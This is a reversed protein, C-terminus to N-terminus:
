RVNYLSDHTTKRMVDQQSLTRVADEITAAARRYAEDPACGETQRCLATHAIVPGIRASLTRQQPILLRGKPIASFTGELYIPLIDVGATLALYGVGRKFRGMAGTLTRTGEPFMLVLEGQQLATLAPKLSEQLDASRDIPLLNTFNGFYIRRIGDRFFYDKAALARLNKGYAGLAYKVLGMDLHSAHNAVILVNRNKPIHRAGVITTDFLQEYLRGQLKGLGWKVFAKAPPPIHLNRVTLAEPLPMPVLFSLHPLLPRGDKGQLRATMHPFVHRALGAIHVDIWYHRWDIAEPEWAWLAREAPSLRARLTRMRAAHFRVAHDHIFPLYQAFIKESRAALTRLAKGAEHLPRAIARLPLPGHRSARALWPQWADITARIQPASYKRFHAASVPVGEWQAMLYRLWNPMGLGKALEKSQSTSLYRRKFLGTLEITEAMTLPNTDSSGLQYLPEATGHLLAAGITGIANATQDVPIVDLVVGDGCPFRAQGLLGLFVIPASTNMGENWGPEPFSMASEIIAPRVISFQLKPTAAIVQEGLAKTYTYINPWGLIKARSQAITTATAADHRDLLAHLTAIEQRHDLRGSVRSEPGPVKKRKQDRTEHGTDRTMQVPCWDVLPENEPVSGDRCGAVFCTSIHILKAHRCAATFQAVHKAGLVNIAFAEPLPPNFNVLGAVNIVLDCRNALDEAAAPTLGLTPLTVDGEQIVVKDALHRVSALVPSTWCTTAFRDAASIGDRGPRVLCTISGIDPVNRLLTGLLVKGLFGTAGILFIHRGSLTETVSFTDNM